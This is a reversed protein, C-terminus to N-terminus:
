LKQTLRYDGLNKYKECQKACHNYYDPHYVLSNRLGAPFEKSCGPCRVTEPWTKRYKSKPPVFVQFYDNDQGNRRKALRSNVDSDNANSTNCDSGDTVNLSRKKPMLPPFNLGDDEDSNFRERHSVTESTGNPKKNRLQTLLRQSRRTIAEPVLAVMSDVEADAESVIMKHSALDAIVSQSCETAVRQRKSQTSISDVLETPQGTTMQDSSSEMQLLELDCADPVILKVIPAEDRGASIDDVIEILNEGGSGSGTILGVYVSNQEEDVSSFDLSKASQIIIKVLEAGLENFLAEHDNILSKLFNDDSAHTELTVQHAQLFRQAAPNAVLLQQTDELAETRKEKTGSEISCNIYLDTRRFLNKAAIPKFIIDESETYSAVITLLQFLRADETQVYRALTAQNHLEKMDNLVEDIALVMHRRFKM